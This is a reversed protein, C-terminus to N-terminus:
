AMAFSYLCMDKRFMRFTKEMRFGMRGLLANVPKNDALVTVKVRKIGRKHMFDLVRSILDSAIGRHRYAPEIAIFLFEANIRKMSTRFSYLFLELMDVVLRPRSFVLKICIFPLSSLMFNFLLGRSNIAAMIFGAVRSDGAVLSICNQSKIIVKLYGEIFSRGLKVLYSDFMFDAYLSVMDGLDREGAERILIEKEDM